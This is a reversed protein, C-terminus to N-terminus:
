KKVLLLPNSLGFAARDENKNNHMLHKIGSNLDTTIARLVEM